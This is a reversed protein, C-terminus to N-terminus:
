LEVGGEIPTLGLRQLEANPLEAFYHDTDRYRKIVPHVDSHVDPHSSRPAFRDGNPFDKPSPVSGPVQHLRGSGSEISLVSGLLGIVILAIGLGRM